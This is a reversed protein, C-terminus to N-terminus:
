KCCAEFQESLDKFVLNRGIFVIKSKRSKPEKWKQGRTGDFIMHVGHVVFQEEYDKMALIGKMRYIDPGKERLLNSIWINFKNLDIDKSSVLSVTSFDDKKHKKSKAFNFSTKKIKGTKDQEIKFPITSSSKEMNENFEYKKLLGQNKAPDFAKINLLDELLVKSYQCDILKAESNISKIKNKLDGLENETVLDIKNLLIRDAFTLQLISEPVTKEEKNNKIDAKIENLQQPLHKSDVMTVVGDLRLRALCQPDMYLSQVLPAPDAIGTTEIVVWDLLAFSDHQFMKQFTKILDQRVTCCICGNNMLIIEEKDTQQMLLEHDIGEAGVENEIVLIKMGLTNSLINKVLTTKGSGLFGTIITVPLRNDKESDEKRRSNWGDEPKVKLNNIAETTNTDEKNNNLYSFWFYILYTMWLIFVTIGFTISSFEDVFKVVSSVILSSFMVGALALKRWGWIRETMKYKLSEKPEFKWLGKTLIAARSELNTKSLSNIWVIGLGAAAIVLMSGHFIVKGESM